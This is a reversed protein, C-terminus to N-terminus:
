VSEARSRRISGLRMSWRRVVRPLFSIAVLVAASALATVLARAGSGAVGAVLQAASLTYIVTVPIIGVATAILYSAASMEGFAAMANLLAFPVVPILRLRFLAPATIPAVTPAAGSFRLAGFALAAATLEGIWNLLSGRVAGFLVGGALTLPTAPVGVAAAIAYVAVFGPALFRVGRARAIAAALRERDHIAFLGFRWAAVLLAAAIVGVSLARPWSWGNRDPSRM